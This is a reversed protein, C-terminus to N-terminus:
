KYMEDAPFLITTLANSQLAIRSTEQEFGADEKQPVKVLQWAPQWTTLLHQVLPSDWHVYMVYAEALHLYPQGSQSEFGSSVDGSIRFLPILPEM